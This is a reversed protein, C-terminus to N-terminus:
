LPVGSFIRNRVAMGRIESYHHTRGGKALPTPARLAMEAHDWRNFVIFAPVLKEIRRDGAAAFDMFLVPGTDVQWVKKEPEVNMTTIPYEMVAKSRGDPATVETRGILPLNRLTADVIDASETLEVATSFRAVDIRVSAFRQKNVEFTDRAAEADAFDRILHSEAESFVGLFNYPPEQILGQPKYMAEGQCPCILVFDETEGMAESVWRCRADINIRATNIGKLEFTLFSATFDCVNIM